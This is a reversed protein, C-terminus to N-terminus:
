DDNSLEFLGDDWLLPDEVVAATMGFPLFDKVKRKMAAFRRSFFMHNYCGLVGQNEAGFEAVDSSGRVVAGFGPEGWHPTFFHPEEERVTASDWQLDATEPQKFFNKSVMSYRLYGDISIKKEDGRKVKSVTLISDSALLTNCIIKELLTVHELRVTGRALQFSNVLSDNVTCWPNEVHRSTVVVKSVACRSMTLNGGRVELSDQMVVNELVVDLTKTLIQGTLYVPKGGNGRILLGDRGLDQPIRIVSLFESEYGSTRWDPNWTIPEKGPQFFGTFPPIHLVIHSPNAQGGRISAARFDLSRLSRDFFANATKPVGNNKPTRWTVSKGAITSKEVDPSITEALEPTMTRGIVPTAVPNGPHLHAPTEEEGQGFYAAPLRAQGIRVSSITKTRGEGIVCEVGGLAEVIEELCRLTGKQKNWRISHQVEQRRGEDDPCVLKAGYLKATYPMTWSQASAMADAGGPLFDEHLTDLAHNIRDLLSGCIDLYQALTGDDRDRYHDLLAHYLLHGFRSHNPPKNAANSM